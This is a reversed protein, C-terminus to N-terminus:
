PSTRTYENQGQARSRMQQEWSAQDGAKWGEANYANHAGQWAQVDAKRKSATQPTEGCGSLVIVMTALVVGPGALM